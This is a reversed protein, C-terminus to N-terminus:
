HKKQSNLADLTIILEKGQIVPLLMRLVEAEHEKKNSYESIAFTLGTKQCFLSVISTFDQQKQQSNTVTSRLAKGDGSIWDGASLDQSSTWREFASIVEKKDLNSIIERFTVHSPIGHVLSLEEIFFSKNARAFEAIPRYGHYGSAIASFIM